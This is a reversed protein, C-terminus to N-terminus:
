SSVVTFRRCGLVLATFGWLAYRLTIQVDLPGLNLRYWEHVLWLNLSLGTVVLTADALLGRELNLYDFVRLSLTDAPLIGSVWGFMKAFALALADSVGPVSVSDWSDHHPCRDCCREGSSSRSDALGHTWPRLCHPTGFPDFLALAPLDAPPASPKELRRSLQRMHPPRGRGDPHLVIPVETIKQRFICAKAVMESAFEM